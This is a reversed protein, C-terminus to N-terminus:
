TSGRVTVGKCVTQKREGPLVLELEIKHSNGLLEVWVGLKRASLGRRGRQGGAGRGEERLQGQFVQLAWLLHEGYKPWPCGSRAQAAKVPCEGPGGEELARAAM